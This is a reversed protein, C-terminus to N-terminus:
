QEGTTKKIEPEHEPTQIMSLWMGYYATVEGNKDEMHIEIRRATRLHALCRKLNVIHEPRLLSPKIFLM